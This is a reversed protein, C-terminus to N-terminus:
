LKERAIGVPVISCAETSRGGGWGGGDGGGDGDGDRGDDDGNGGGGDGGSGDFGGGSDGGGGEKKTGREGPLPPIKQPGEREKQGRGNERGQKAFVIVVIIAPLLLSRLECVAVSQPLHPYM